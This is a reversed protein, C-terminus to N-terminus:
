GEAKKRRRLLYYVHSRACGTQKVIEPVSVDNDYLSYIEEADYKPKRGFQVGDDIAAQRGENTRELIREREAQAVAAIITIIMEGHTGETNLGEKIFHVTVGRKKLDATITIMDSTNRGLRDLCKVYIKDGKEVKVLLEALAPRELNKGSKKECLIRLRDVGADLLTEIQLDLSQKRSSVRAYGFLRSM